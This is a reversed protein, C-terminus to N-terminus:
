SSESKSPQATEASGQKVRIWSKSFEKEQNTALNLYQLVPLHRSMTLCMRTSIVRSLCPILHSSKTFLREPYLPHYLVAMTARLGFTFRTQKNMPRNSHVMSHLYPAPVSNAVRGIDRYHPFHGGKLVLRPRETPKLLGLDYGWVGQGDRM